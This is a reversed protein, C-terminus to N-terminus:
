ASHSRSSYEATGIGSFGCASVSATSFPRTVRRRRQPSQSRAAVHQRRQNRSTERQHATPTLTPTPEDLECVGVAEWSAPREM